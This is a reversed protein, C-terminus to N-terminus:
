LPKFPFSWPRVTNSKPFLPMPPLLPGTDKQSSLTGLHSVVEQLGLRLSALHGIQEGTASWSHWATEAWPWVAKFTSSPLTSSAAWGDGTYYAVRMGTSKSEAEWVPLYLGGGSQHEGVVSEAHWFVSCWKGLALEQEEQERDGPQHPLSGTGSGAPVLSSPWLEMWCTFLQVSQFTFLEEEMHLLPLVCPLGSGRLNSLCAFLPLQFECLLFQWLLWHRLM